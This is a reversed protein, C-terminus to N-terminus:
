RDGAARMRYAGPTTGTEARFTTTFHAQSAFGLSQGLEALSLQRDSLMEKARAIRRQLVYRHPALGTSQKFARAFHHPSLRVLEALRRLSTDEGLDAEIHDLVRRLQVPTLGGRCPQHRAATDSSVRGNGNQNENMAAARHARM